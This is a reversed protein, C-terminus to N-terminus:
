AALSAGGADGYGIPSRLAKSADAGPNAVAPGPGRWGKPWWSTGWRAAMGCWSGSSAAMGTWTAASRACNSRAPQSCPRWANRRAPPLRIERECRGRVEPADIDAIRIKDGRYRFTDGDTIVVAGPDDVRATAGALAPTTGPLLTWFLGAAVGGLLM